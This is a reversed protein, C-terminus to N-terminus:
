WTESAVQRASQCSVTCGFVRFKSADLVSSTLLTLPIGGTLGVSRIYTRNHLYVVTSVDCSWMSNPVAMSHLMACASDRMTRWPREAKGLM